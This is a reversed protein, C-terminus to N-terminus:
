RNQFLPYEGDLVITYKSCIKLKRLVDRMADLLEKWNDGADHTCSEYCDADGVWGNGHYYAEQVIRNFMEILKDAPIQDASELRKLEATLRDITENASELVKKQLSIVSKAERLLEDTCNGLTGCRSCEKCNDKSCCELDHLIDVETM